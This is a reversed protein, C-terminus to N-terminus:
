GDENANVELFVSSTKGKDDFCLGHTLMKSPLGMAPQFELEMDIDFYGWGVRSLLFPAEKVVIKNPKFTPHLHYTVQKIYKKTEEPSNNLSLFM